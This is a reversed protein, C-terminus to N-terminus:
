SSCGAIAGNYAGRNRTRGCNSSRKIESKALIDLAGCMIYGKDTTVALLTTKPLAVEIGIVKFGEVEIPKMRIM